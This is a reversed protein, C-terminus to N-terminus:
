KLPIKAWSYNKFTHIYIFFPLHTVRESIQICPQFYWRGGAAQGVQSVQAVPLLAPPLNHPIQQSKTAPNTTWRSLCPLQVTADGSMVTVKYNKSRYFLARPQPPLIGSSDVWMQRSFDYASINMQWPKQWVHLLSPNTDTVCISKKEEKPIQQCLM